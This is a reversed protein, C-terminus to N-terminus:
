REMRDIGRGRGVPPARERLVLRIGRPRVGLCNAPGGRKRVTRRQAHTEAGVGSTVRLRDDSERGGRSYM